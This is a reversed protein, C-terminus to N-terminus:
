SATKAGWDPWRGERRRLQGVADERVLRDLAEHAKHTLGTGSIQDPLQRM